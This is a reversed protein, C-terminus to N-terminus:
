KVEARLFRAVGVALPVLVWISAASALHLWDQGVMETTTSILPSVAQNLDLWAARETLWPVFTVVTTWLQPLVFFVVVAAPTNLLILGIASAQLMVLALNLAAGAAPGGALLWSDWTRGNLAALGAGAYTVAISVTMVALAALQSAVLKAVLVRWRRPELAFTTLGTRQSWEATASLIAVVPVLVGLPLFALLFVDHLNTAPFYTVALATGGASALMAIILLWRGARTNVLKRCEVLLLNLFSAPQAAPLDARRAIPSATSPALTATM